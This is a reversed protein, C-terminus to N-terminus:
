IIRRQRGFGLLQRIADLLVTPGDSERVLLDVFDLSGEPVEYGSVLVIPVKPKLEKMAGAVLGGDMMPLAYELVVLDVPNSSFLELADDRDAASLVGYGAASLLRYRSFLAAFDAHVSLILSNQGTLATIRLSAAEKGM